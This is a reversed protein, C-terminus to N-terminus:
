HAVIKKLLNNLSHSVSHRMHQYDEAALLKYEFGTYRKGSQVCIYNNNELEKIYRKLNSSNMRLAQKVEATSFTNKKQQKLFSRICELCDRSAASIDDSKRIFTEALLENATKIDEVKVEIYKEQANNVQVKRQYQHLFAIAEIFSLYINMSRRPNFVTDPLHLKAAYPNVVAIPQLLRQMNKFLEKIRHEEKTDIMGASRKKQYLMIAEDQKKGGDVQILISRNSNDEYINEKTTTGAISVKGQVIVTQTKLQGKNNKNTFTKSLKKKSQLERIAYLSEPSAGDLDEILLLKKDLEHEGFYYLSNNTLSTIEIKDEEPILESVKEQLHTKGLGSRGLTIIHLPNNLKRSSFVIYMLLRNIEEGIVGSKGILNNTKLLLDKAKLFTIAEKTEAENLVKSKLSQVQSSELQHVRYQELAEILGMIIKRVQVLEREFHESCRRVLKEVQDTNYLDINYRLPFISTLTECCLKLTVRLRDLGTIRIGGLIHIQLKDATYIYHEANDTNLNNTM